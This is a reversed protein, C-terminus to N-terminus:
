NGCPAKPNVRAYDTALVIDGTNAELEDRVAAATTASVNGKLAFVSLQYVNDCNGSGFWEAAVGNFGVAQTTGAPINGDGITTTGAPVGWIVWHVAPKNQQLFKLDQFVLAYGTTGEPGASWTITPMVNDGGIM